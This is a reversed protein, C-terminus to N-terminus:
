VLAATPSSRTFPWRRPLRVARRHVDRGQRLLELRSDVLPPRAGHGRIRGGTSEVRHATGHSPVLNPATLQSDGAASAPPMRTCTGKPKTLTLEAGVAVLLESVRELQGGRVTGPELAGRGADRRARRLHDGGAAARAGPAHMVGHGSSGNICISTRASPRRAWSRTSTPRCRMSGPGARPGISRRRLPAGAGARAGHRRGRRDLGSGRQADFPRGPVGPTPWLLLVRGDRVRLHFGDGAWITMPMDAPLLECPTTAAIQRRLPTVPLTVGAMRGGGRGVPGGREGGRRGRDAAAVTEVEVIRGESRASARSRSAGSSECASGRAGRRPLGRSDTAPPHIRRDSLVRRGRHRRPRVAPNIRAIDEPTVEVAEGLGEAHQVRRGARLARWSASPEDRALSVRGSRVRSRRRDRGRFALLKTAPSCRSGCTSRRATSRAFAARPGAPAARAPGDARDLVVVDRRGRAALHYAVSAGMVGGGIVAVAAPKM